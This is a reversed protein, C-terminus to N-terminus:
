RWIEQWKSTVYDEGGTKQYIVSCSYTGPSTPGNYELVNITPHASFVILPVNSAVTPVGGITITAPNGTRQDIMTFTHAGKTLDSAPDHNAYGATIFNVASQVPTNPDTIDQVMVDIAISVQEGPSPM